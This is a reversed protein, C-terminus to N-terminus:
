HLVDDADDPGAEHHVGTIGLRREIDDDDRSSRAYLASLGLAVGLTLCVATLVLFLGAYDFGSNDSDDVYVAGWSGCDIRVNGTVPSVFTALANTPRVDTSIVTVTLAVPGGSEPILSCQAQTPSIGHQQLARRGGPRSIQYRHGSTVHVTQPPTAGTNYSHKELGDSVRYLGALLVAALLLVVALLGRHRMVFARM